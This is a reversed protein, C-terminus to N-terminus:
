KKVLLNIEKAKEKNFGDHKKIYYEVFKNVEYSDEKSREVFENSSFLVGTAQVYDKM